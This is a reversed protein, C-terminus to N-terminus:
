RHYTFIPVSEPSGGGGWGVLNDQSSAGASANKKFDGRVFRVRMGLLSGSYTKLNLFLKMIIYLDM